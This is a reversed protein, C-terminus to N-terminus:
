NFFVASNPNQGGCDFKEIFTGDKKFRYINGNGAAFYTTGIYIDGNDDNVQLMSTSTTALEKPADDKLFSSQNLTKTKINYTSFHNTTVAPNVNWNTLSNILYVVDDDAAMYTAHGINTVENSNAPDIIQLVYGEEVFSYDWAILFIKDDEEMLVNPNTAVALKEKLTFTALDVVFVDNLYVWKGDVQKYSNAVYLMNNSIAVGELNYGNEIALKKEVKLTNANIKAVVGGYFSAYIYGDEAAIARIGAALDPDDVFSARTQEVGAATLKVLYNSGYVAVYMCENYEIMTQGLDGLKAKNQKQFIDGIFDAGGNPAYFAINANNAGQTGANLFFARVQPLAVTSGSDDLLDDDDSCSAFSVSLALMCLMSVLLSRVKM